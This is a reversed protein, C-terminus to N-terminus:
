NFGDAVCRNCFSLILIKFTFLFISYSYANGENIGEALYQGYFLKVMPNSLEKGTGSGSASARSVIVSWM